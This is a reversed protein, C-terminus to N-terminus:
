KEIFPQGTIKEFAIVKALSYDGFLMKKLQFKARIGYNKEAMKFPSEPWLKDFDAKSVYVWRITGYPEALWVRKNKNLSELSYRIYDKQEIDIMKYKISSDIIITSNLTLIRYRFLTILFFLFVVGCISIFVNM